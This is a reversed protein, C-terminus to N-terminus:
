RRSRSNSRSNSRSYQRRPNACLGKRALRIRKRSRLREGGLIQALMVTQSRSWPNHLYGAVAVLSATRGPSDLGFLNAVAYLRGYLPIPLGDILLELSGSAVERPSWHRRRPSPSPLRAPDLRRLSNSLSYLSWLWTSRPNLNRFSGRNKAELRNTFLGLRTAAM